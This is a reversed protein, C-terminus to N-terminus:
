ASILASIEAAVRGPQEMPIYHSVGDLVIERANPIYSILEPDTPSAALDLEGSKRLIAARMVVVPQSLQALESHVGAEAAISEHYISAEVAPPCALNWHDATQLLGYNCYDHLIEPKWRAFPERKHFRHFMQDPSEFVAKRRLTFTADLPPQGYLGPPFITPDILLLSSYTVPRLWAARATAHGGMSHGIGIAHTIDLSEAIAALDAGFEPWHYPPEPKSSRGHGRAEIALARRGPIQAIIRDWIRGHFGTAHAFVLPPEEGPWDWVALDLGRVSITRLQPNM